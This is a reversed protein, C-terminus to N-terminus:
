MAKSFEKMWTLSCCDELDGEHMSLVKVNHAQVFNHFEMLTHLGRSLRSFNKVIVTNIKGDSIDAMLSNMGPRNLTAGSAGNDCYNKCDMFGNNIAFQTVSLTQAELAFDNASAVRIYIAPIAKKIM